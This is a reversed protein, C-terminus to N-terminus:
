LAEGKTKQCRKRAGLYAEVIRPDNLLETGTGRITIRGNELVFAQDSISLAKKANQEVLLVTVGKARIDIIKEFVSEVILPALGLSPEDLLLLQPRAMMARAIALMQQEGGSLTAGHQARRERLIPFMEFQEGICRATDKADKNLFAGIRLNEEVTLEPFIRRGEPVHVVGAAVIQYPKAPMPKGLYRINGSRFAEIGSVCKLLSTKGAGNAGIVSVIEGKELEFSVCKLAQTQGYNLSIDSVRLM